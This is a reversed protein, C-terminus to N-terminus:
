FGCGMKGCDINHSDMEWADWSLPSILGHHHHGRKAGSLVPTSVSTVLTLYVFVYRLQPGPKTMLVMIVLSERPITLTIYDDICCGAGM